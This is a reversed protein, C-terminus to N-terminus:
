GRRSREAAFKAHREEIRRRTEAVGEMDVPAEVGLEAHIRQYIGLELLPIQIQEWPTPGVLPTLQKIRDEISECRISWTGPRIASQRATDLDGWLLMLEERCATILDNM